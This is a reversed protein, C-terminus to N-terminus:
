EQASSGDTACELDLDSELELTDFLTFQEPKFLVRDIQSADVGEALMVKEGFVDEFMRLTRELERRQAATAKM